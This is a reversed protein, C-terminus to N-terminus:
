NAPKNKGCSHMGKGFGKGPMELGIEDKIQKAQEFKAKGEQMLQHAELLRPFEEETVQEEMPTGAVADAYAQFDGAELASKVAEQHAKMEAQKEESMFGRGEKFKQAFPCPINQDDDAQSSDAPEAAFSFASLGIVAVLAVAIAGVTLTNKNKM